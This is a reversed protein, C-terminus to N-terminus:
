LLDAYDPIVLSLSTNRSNDLMNTLRKFERLQHSDDRSQMYELVKVWRTALQLAGQAQCWLVHKNIMSTLRQKHHEPLVTITLWAPSIMVSLYFETINLKGSTHWSNQLDMLSQVNLLGVVSTVTINVHPCCSKVLKLNSEINKWNTGHRVYEAVAGQADLSAGITINSFKSWLDLVSQGRYSLTTFNTNYTIELNTNNCAILANLIEYHESALLPEGGAFYIKECLPLYKIIKDLAIKRQQLEMSSQVSQPNGFLDEDEQAIASSFYGSCMRCKLNCINNLRIDLYTPEFSLIRGSPDQDAAQINPWQKNQYIRASALGADEKTYCQACEKSRKGSLMNARLQNFASSGVIEDISSHKINGMVHRHDAQCCPLVNGDPGVYLHMWPLVCFTDQKKYTIQYERDPLIYSQMACDDTSYLARVQELEQNINPNYTVVLIFFNSIDIQTAHKQLACIAQGPWDQYDYTDVCDQVILIRFNDKYESQYASTLFEYLRRDGGPKFFDSLYYPGATDYLKQLKSLELDTSVM